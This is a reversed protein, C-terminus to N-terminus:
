NLSTLHCHASCDLMKLQALRVQMKPFICMPQPPVELEIGTQTTFQSFLEAVLAESRGSYVVLPGTSTETSESSGSSCGVFLAAAMAGAILQKVRSKTRFQNM